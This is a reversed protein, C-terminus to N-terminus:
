SLLIKLEKPIEIAHSKQELEEFSNLGIGIDPQLTYLTVHTPQTPVKINLESALQNSFKELNSVECRAVITKRGESQAFRFEGTYKLFNIEKDKVFNCFKELILNELGEKNNLILLGKVHMLSAHFSSKLKLSEGDFNIETPLVNVMVPMHIYGKSYIYKNSNCIFNTM